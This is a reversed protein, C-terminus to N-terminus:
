FYGRVLLALENCLLSIVRPLSFVFHSLGAFDRNEYVAPVNYAMQGLFQNFIM